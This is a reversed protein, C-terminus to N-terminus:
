CQLNKVVRLDAKPANFLFVWSSRHCLKSLFLQTPTVSAFPPLLTTEVDTKARAQKGNEDWQDPRTWETECSRDARM